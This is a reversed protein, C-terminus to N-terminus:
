VGTEPFYEVIKMIKVFESPIVDAYALAKIRGAGSQLFHPIGGSAQGLGSYPDRFEDEDPLLKTYDKLAKGKIKLVAANKHFKETLGEALDLASDYNNYLYVAKQIDFNLSAYGRVPINSLPIGDPYDKQLDGIRLSPELGKEMIGDLYEELTAHFWDKEWIEEIVRMVFRKQVSKHDKRQNAYTPFTGSVNRIRGILQNLPENVNPGQVLYSDFGGAKKVLELKGITVPNALPINKPLHIVKKENDIWFASESNTPKYLVVEPRYNGIISVTWKVIISQKLLEWFKSDVEPQYFSTSAEFWTKFNM